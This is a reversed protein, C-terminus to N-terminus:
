RMINGLQGGFQRSHLLLLFSGFDIQLLLPSGRSRLAKRWRPWDIREFLQSLRRCLCLGSLREVSTDFAADSKFWAQFYDSQLVSLIRTSVGRERWTRTPRPYKASLSKIKVPPLQQQGRTQKGQLFPAMKLRPFAPMNHTPLNLLSSVTYM